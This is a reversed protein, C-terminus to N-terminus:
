GFFLGKPTRNSGQCIFTYLNPQIKAQIHFASSTKIRHHKPYNRNFRSPLHESPLKKM